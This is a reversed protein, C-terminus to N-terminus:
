KTDLFHELAKLTAKNVENRYISAKSTIRMDFSAQSYIDGADLQENAKLIVVGWKDVENNIAHDLSNHGRDGIIGPHLIFSDYNEFVEKPLYEKLFPSLVIDPKVRNVEEIMLEKSIAFKVSVEHNLERLKCFVSQSLSNFSSIILLIKM